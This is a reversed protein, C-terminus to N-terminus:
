SDFSKEWFGTQRSSELRLQKMNRLAAKLGPYLMALNHKWWAKNYAMQRDYAKDLFDKYFISLAEPTVEQGSAILQAEYDKKAQSFMTNNNTWFTQNFADVQQQHERWRQEEDTENPRVYYKVPRLNSVPDPLGIMDSRVTQTLPENAAKSSFCRMQRFLPRVIM